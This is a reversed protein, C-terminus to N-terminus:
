MGVIRRGNNGALMGARSAREREFKQEVHESLEKLQLALNKVAADHKSLDPTSRKELEIIRQFHGGLVSNCVKMEHDFADVRHGIDDVRYLKNRLEDVSEDLVWVKSAIESDAKKLWWRFGVLALLAILVAAASAYIM